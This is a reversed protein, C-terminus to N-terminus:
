SETNILKEVTMIPDSIAQEVKNVIKNVGKDVAKDVGKNVDKEVVKEAEGKVELAMPTREIDLQNDKNVTTNTKVITVDTTVETRRLSELAPKLTEQQEPSMSGILAELEMLKSDNAKQEDQANNSESPSIINIAPSNTTDLSTQSNVM